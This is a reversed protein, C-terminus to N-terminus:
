SQKLKKLNTNIKKPVGNVGYVICGIFIMNLSKLTVSVTDWPKYHWQADSGVLIFWAYWLEKSMWDVKRSMMDDVFYRDFQVNFLGGQLIVTSVSSKTCSM